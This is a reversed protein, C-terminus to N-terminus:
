MSLWPSLYRFLCIITCSGGYSLSALNQLSKDSSSLLSSRIKTASLFLSAKSRPTTFCIGSTDSPYLQLSTFLYRFLFQSLPLLLLNPLLHKQTSQWLFHLFFSSVLISGFFVLSSLLCMLYFYQWAHPSLILWDVNSKKEILTTASNTSPRHCHKSWSSTLICAPVSSAKDATDALFKQHVQDVAEFIPPYETSPVM